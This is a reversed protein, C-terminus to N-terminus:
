DVLCRKDDEVFGVAHEVHTEDVVYLEYESPCGVFLLRCHEGSGHGVFDEFQRRPVHVISLFYQDASVLYRNFFYVLEVAYYVWFTLELCEAVYHVVFCNLTSQNEAGGLYARIPNSISQASVPTVDSYYVTIQRLRL